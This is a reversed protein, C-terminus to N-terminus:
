QIKYLNGLARLVAAVSSRNLSTLLVIINGAGVGMRLAVPGSHGGLALEGMSECPLNGIPIAWFIRGNVIADGLNGTLVADNKLHLYELSPVDGLLSLAALPAQRLVNNQIDRAGFDATVLVTGGAEACARLRDVAGLELICFHPVLVLKHEVTVDTISGIRIDGLVDVAGGFWHEEIERRYDFAVGPQPRNEIGWQLQFSFVLLAEPGAVKREVNRVTHIAASVAEAVRTPTGDHRLVAGHESECGAAHQRLHWYIAYEAGAERCIRLHREIRSMDEPFLNQANQQGAKQELVWLPKEGPEAGNLGALEFRSATEDEQYHSIGMVDLHPRWQWRDFPMDWSLNYFNTTVRQAGLKRLAEAQCRYFALWDDSRFRRFDLRIAPAHALFRKSPIPIQEWRSYVQSWFSTQWAANLAELSGYREHLWAQFSRRCRECWCTFGDGALENDIQWGVIAPHNGIAGFIDRTIKRCRERYGEHSPCYNRRVGVPVVYGDENVAHLDPWQDFLHPPPTASPTCWIVDYGHSAAVDLFETAWGAGWQGPQAEFASWAFEGCRLASLGLTRGTSLDKGWEAKSLTEPYYSAGVKM